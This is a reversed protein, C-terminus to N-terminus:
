CKAVERSHATQKPFESHSAHLEDAKQSGLRLSSILLPDGYGNQLECQYKSGLPAVARVSFPTEQHSATLPNEPVARM